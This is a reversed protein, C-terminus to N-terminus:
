QGEDDQVTGDIKLLTRLDKSQTMLWTGNVLKWTDQSKQLVDVEHKGDPAQFAGNVKNTNVVVVTTADPATPSENTNDCSSGQFQKLQQKASATIEDKTQTKGKLDLNKYDSSITAFWTEMNKDTPDLVAACGLAYQATVAKLADATPATDAMAPASILLLASTAMLATKFNM